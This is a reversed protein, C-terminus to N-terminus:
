TFAAYFYRLIEFFIKALRRESFTIQFLLVFFICIMFFYFVQSVLRVSYFNVLGEESFPFDVEFISLEKCIILHKWGTFAHM